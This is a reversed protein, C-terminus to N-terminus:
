NTLNQDASCIALYAAESDPADRLRQLFGPTQLLRGLRALVQLHTRSDRCLVLFFLDTLRSLFWHLQIDVPRLFDSAIEGSQIRQGLARILDWALHIHMIRSLVVYTLIKGVGLEAIEYGELFVARWLFLFLFLSLFSSVFSTLLATRYCMNLKINLEVVALTKKLWQFIEFGAIPM